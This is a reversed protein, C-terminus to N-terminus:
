RYSPFSLFFLFILLILFAYCCFCHWCFIPRCDILLAFGVSIVDKAGGCFIGDKHFQVLVM